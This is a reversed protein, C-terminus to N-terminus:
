CSLTRRRNGGTVGRLAHGPPDLYLIWVMWLGSGAHSRRLVDPVVGRGPECRDASPPVAEGFDLLSRVGYEQVPRDDTVPAADRTAAALTQASGVFAGVIERVSGLDVRALDSQVAPARSLAATLRAPDVDIRSTANVGLLLM